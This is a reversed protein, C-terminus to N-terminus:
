ETLFLDFLRRVNREVDFDALVKQRGRQGLQACLTPNDLLRALAEALVDEDNPSVLLGSVKDKVLEPIGSHRTTVVPLRMAMAEALVNPIGDRDGDQATVCPLVFLTAQRYKDIVAERPMAGCLTITSELGLQTIQTELTQRLPGEGVIHCIFDYGQDKLRRCAAILYSFGKKEMLRGVSLLLPRDGRPPSSSPQYSTLDLGHYALHLKGNLEDGMMRRLYAQNYGTCTTIFKAGAIKERLLIPRIYIDNAHATLSYPVDLLHSTVLAVVAARDVFHAHLQDCPQGRLLHAAYVSEAFHLFTMLRAKLHPHPRTLLYFLTRFYALSRFSIFYLNAIIFRLWNVPLLYTVEQQLEQQEVSLPMGAAPRRISVVRLNVGRQRLNKIERDIFTKTFSPFTGIIYVLKLTKGM